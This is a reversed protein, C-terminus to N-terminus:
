GVWRLRLHVVAGAAGSVPLLRDIEHASMLEGLRFDARGIETDKTATKGIKTAGALLRAPGELGASGRDKFVITMTDSSLNTQFWLTEAFSGSTGADVLVKTKGVAMGNVCVEAFPDQKGLLQVRRLGSFELLTVEVRHPGTPMPGTMGHVGTKGAKHGGGLHTSFLGAAVPLLSGFTGGSSGGYATSAGHTM